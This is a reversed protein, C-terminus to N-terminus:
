HPWFGASRGTRSKPKLAPCSALDKAISGLGLHARRTSTLNGKPNFCCERYLRAKRGKTSSTRTRSGGVIIVVVVVVVVVAGGGAEAEKAAAAAVAVAVEEAVAVALVAFEVVAVLVVVLVVVVVVIVRGATTGAIISEAVPGRAGRGTPRKLAQSQQLESFFDLLSVHSCLAHLGIIM